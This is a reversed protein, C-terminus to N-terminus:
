RPKILLNGNTIGYKDTLEADASFSLVLTIDFSAIVMALIINRQNSVKPEEAPTVTTFEKQGTISIRYSSKVNM